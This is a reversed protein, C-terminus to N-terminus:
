QSERRAATSLSPKDPLHARLSMASSMKLTLTSYASYINNTLLKDSALITNKDSLWAMFFSMCDDIVITVLRGSEILKSCHALHSLAM